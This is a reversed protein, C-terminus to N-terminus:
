KVESGNWKKNKLWWEIYDIVAEKEEKFGSTCCGTYGFDLPCGDCGGREDCIDSIAEIVDVATLKIPEFMEESWLFDPENEEILYYGQPTVTKITVIKGTYKDMPSSFYVNGYINGAELEIRVWVRDGIKYKM